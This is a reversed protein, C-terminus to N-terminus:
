IRPGELGALLQAETMKEVAIEEPEGELENAEFTVMDKDMKVWVFEDHVAVVEGCSAPDGIERVREGKNWKRRYLAHVQDLRLLITLYERGIIELYYATEPDDDIISDRKARARILVEDGKRVRYGEPLPM